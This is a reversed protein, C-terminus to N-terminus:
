SSFAYKRQQLRQQKNIHIRLHAAANFLFAKPTSGARTKIEYKINAHIREKDNPVGKSFVLHKLVHDYTTNPHDMIYIIGESIFPYAKASSQINHELLYEYVFEMRPDDKLKIKQSM